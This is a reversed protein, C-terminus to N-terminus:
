PSKKQRKAAAKSITAKIAEQAAWSDLMQRIGPLVDPQLAPTLGQSNKANVNAGAELLVPICAALNFKAALHLISTGRKKPDGTVDLGQQAFHAIKPALLTARREMEESWSLTPGNLTGYNMSSQEEGVSQVLAAAIGMKSNGSKFSRANWYDADLPSGAEVLAAIIGPLNSTALPVVNNREQSEYAAKAAGELITERQAGLAGAPFQQLIRKVVSLKGAVAAMELASVRTGDALELVDPLADESKWRSLLVDVFHLNSRDIANGLKSIKVPASRFGDWPGKHTPPTAEYWHLGIGASQPKLGFADAGQDVLRGILDKQYDYLGVHCFANMVFHLQDNLPLSTDLQLHRGGDEATKPFSNLHNLHGASIYAM